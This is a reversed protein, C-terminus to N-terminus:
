LGIQRSVAPDALQADTAGVGIHERLIEQSARIMCPISSSWPPVARTSRSISQGPTPADNVTSFSAEDLSQLFSGKSRWQDTNSAAAAAKLTPEDGRALRSDYNNKPSPLVTSSSPQSADSSAMQKGDNSAAATTPMTLTMWRGLVLGDEFSEVLLNSNSMHPFVTPVRVRCRLRLFRKRSALRSFNRAFKMTREAERGLDLQSLMLGRFQELSDSLAVFETGPLCEVLSVFFRLVALDAPFADALSPQVCVCM